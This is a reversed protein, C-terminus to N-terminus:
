QSIANIIKGDPLLELQYATSSSADYDLQEVDSQGSVVYIIWDEDITAISKTLLKGDSFTGSIARKAILVGKKTFTALVYKYDMLGAMWYVIAHFEYTEPIRFCAVFETLPDAASEEIPALFHDIMEVPLPDNRRSFIYQAEDNLTIPLEIEPFKELFQAFDPTPVKM